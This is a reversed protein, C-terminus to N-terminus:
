LPLQQQAEYTKDGFPRVQNTLAAELSGDLHAREAAAGGYQAVESSYERCTLARPPLPPCPQDAVSTNLSHRCTCSPSTPPFHAFPRSTSGRICTVQVLDKTSYRPPTHPVCEASSPACGGARAPGEHDWLTDYAQM